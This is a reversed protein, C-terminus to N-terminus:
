LSYSENLTQQRIEIMRNALSFLRLDHSIIIVTKQDMRQILRVLNKVKDQDLYTTPEDFFVIPADKLLVRALGIIQREGGSLSTGKEDITTSLDNNCKHLLSEGGAKMLAACLQDDSASACAVILNERLSGKILQTHQNMLSFHSLWESESWQEAPDGQLTISADPPITQLRLLIDLLTSKGSGNEGTLIIRDGQQIDLTINELLMQEKHWGYRPLRLQLLPSVDRCTEKDRPSTSPYSEKPFGLLGSVRQILSNLSYIVSIYGGLRKISDAMLQEWVFIAVFSGPTIANEMLLKGGYGLVVLTSSFQAVYGLPVALSMTIGAAQDIQKVKLNLGAIRQAELDEAQYLKVTKIWSLSEQIHGSFRSNYIQLAREYLAAKKIIPNIIFSSTVISAAILFALTTNIFLMAIFPGIVSLIDYIVDSYLTRIREGILFTDNKIRFALSGTHYQRIRNWPFNLVSLFINKRLEHGLESTVKQETLIIIFHLLVIILSLGTTLLLLENFTLSFITESKLLVNTIEQIMFPYAVEALGAIITSFFGIWLLSTKKMYYHTFKLINM